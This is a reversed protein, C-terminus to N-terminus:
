EETGESDDDEQAEEPPIPVAECRCNYDDGPNCDEGSSSEDATLPPSDWSAEVGDLFAHESRVKDDHSAQWIYDTVGAEKQATRNCAAWARGFALAAGALLSGMSGGLKEAVDETTLDEEDILGDAKDLLDAVTDSAVGHLHDILEDIELSLDPDYDDLELSLIEAVQRRAAEATRAAQVRVMDDFQDKDLLGMLKGGASKVGAHDNTAIASALLNVAPKFAHGLTQRVATEAGTPPKPAKRRPM